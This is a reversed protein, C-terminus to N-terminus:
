SLIDKKNVKEISIIQFSFGNFHELDIEKLFPEIRNKYFPLHELEGKNITEVKIGGLNIGGAERTEISNSGRMKPNIGEGFIGAALHLDSRGSLTDAILAAKQENTLLIGKGAFNYLVGTKLDMAIARVKHGLVDEQEVISIKEENLKNQIRLILRESEGTQGGVIRAKLARPQSGIEALADLITKIGANVNISADFHAMAGSQRDADYLTLVVCPGIGMTVLYSNNEKENFQKIGYEKQLIEIGAPVDRELLLGRKLPVLSKTSQPVAYLLPNIRSLDGLAVSSRIALSTITKALQKSLPHEGRDLIRTLDSSSLGLLKSGADTISEINGKKDVEITVLARDNKSDHVYIYIKDSYALSENASIRVYENQFVQQNFQGKLQAVTEHVLTKLADSFEMNKVASSASQGSQNGIEMTLSPTSEEMRIGLGILVERMRAFRDEDTPHTKIGYKEYPLAFIQNEEEEFREAFIPNRLLERIGRIFAPGNKVMGAKVAFYIAGEDARYERAMLKEEFQRKLEPNRVLAALEEENAPWKFVATDSSTSVTNSEKTYRNLFDDFKSNVAANFRQNERDIKWELIHSAEHGFVYALMAEDLMETLDTRMFIGADILFYAPIGSDTVTVPITELLRQRSFPPIALGMQEIVGDMHQQFQQRMGEVRKQPSQTVSSSSVSLFDGLSEWPTITKGRKVAEKLWWSDSHTIGERTASIREAVGDIFEYVHFNGSRSAEYITRNQQDNASQEIQKIEAIDSGMGKSVSFFVNPNSLNLQDVMALVTELSKGLFPMHAYVITTGGEANDGKVIFACCWSSNLIVGDQINKAIVWGNTPIDIRGDKIELDKKGGVAEGIMGATIRQTIASSAPGDKESLAASALSVKEPSISAVEIDRLIHLIWWSKETLFDEWSEKDERLQDAFEKFAEFDLFIFYPHKRLLESGSMRGDIKDWIYELSPVEQLNLAARVATKLPIQLVMPQHQEFFIRYKDAVKRVVEREARNVRQARETERGFEEIMTEAERLMINIVEPPRSAYEEALPRDATLSLKNYHAQPKYPSTMGLFKQHVDFFADVEKQDFPKDYINLGTRLISEELLKTTGHYVYANNVFNRWLENVHEDNQDVGSSAFEKNDNSDAMIASGASRLPVIIMFTTGEGKVSEVHISAGKEKLAHEVGSLGYGTGGKGTRDLRDGPIFVRHLKDEPIGLGNDKIEFRVTNEKPFVRLLIESAESYYAANVLTEWIAIDVVDFYTSLENIQADIKIELAIKQNRSEVFYKFREKISEMFWEINKVEEKMEVAFGFLQRIWGEVRGGQKLAFNAYKNLKDDLILGKEHVARLHYMAAEFEKFRAEVKALLTEPTDKLWGGENGESLKVWEYFDDIAGVLKKSANFLPTTVTKVIEQDSESLKLAQRLITFILEKKDKFSRGLAMDPYRKIELFTDQIVGKADIYDNEKLDVFLADPDIGIKLFDQKVVTGNLKLILTGKPNIFGFGVAAGKANHLGGRLFVPSVPLEKNGVKINSNEMASSASQGKTGSTVQASSDTIGPSSQGGGERGTYDYRYENGDYGDLVWRRDERNLFRQFSDMGYLGPSNSVIHELEYRKEFRDRAESGLYCCLRVIDVTDKLADRAIADFLAEGVGVPGIREFAQVLFEKGPVIDYLIAGVMEGRFVAKLGGGEGRYAAGLNYNDGAIQKAEKLFGKILPIDEPSRLPSISISIGGSHDIEAIGSSASGKITSSSKEKKFDRIMDKVLQAYSYNPNQAINSLAKTFMIKWDAQNKILRTKMSVLTKVAREYETDAINMRLLSQLYENIREDTADMFSGIMAVLEHMALGDEDIGFYNHVMDLYNHWFEHSFNFFFQGRSSLSAKGFKFDKDANDPSTEEEAFRLAKWVASYFLAANMKDIEPYRRFIEIVAMVAAEKINTVREGTKSFYKKADNQLDDNLIHPTSSDKEPGVLFYIAEAPTLEGMREKLYDPLDDKVINEAEVRYTEYMNRLIEEVNGPKEGKKGALVPEASEFDYLNQQIEINLNNPMKQNLIYGTFELLSVVFDAALSFQFMTALLEMVSLFMQETFARRGSLDKKMISAKIKGLLVRNVEAVNSKISVRGNSKKELDVAATKLTLAANNLTSLLDEFSTVSAGRQDGRLFAASKLMEGLRSFLGNLNTWNNKSVQRKIQRGLLEGISGALTDYFASRDSRAAYATLLRSIIGDQLAENQVSAKLGMATALYVILTTTEQDMQDNALLDLLGFINGTSVSPNPAGNIELLIRKLKEETGKKLQAAKPNERLWGFEVLVNELANDMSEKEISSSASRLENLIFSAIDNTKSKLAKNFMDELPVSKFLDKLPAAHRVIKAELRLGDSQRVSIDITGIGLEEYRIIGELDIKKDERADIDNAVEGFREYDGVLKVSVADLGKKSRDVVWRLNEGHINTYFKGEVSRDPIAGIYGLKDQLISLIEFVQIAMHKELQEVKVGLDKALKDFGVSNTLRKGNQNIKEGKTENDIYSFGMTEAEVWFDAEGYFAHAGDEIAFQETSDALATYDKGYLPYVKQGAQLARYREQAINRINQIAPTPNKLVDGYEATYDDPVPPNWELYPKLEAAQQANLVKTMADIEFAVRRRELAKITRKELRKGPIMREQAYTIRGGQDMKFIIFRKFSESVWTVYVGNGLNLYMGTDLAYQLPDRLDNKVVVHSSLWLQRLTEKNKNGPVASFKDKFSKANQLNDIFELKEANPNKFFQSLFAKKWSNGKQSFLEQFSKDITERSVSGHEAYGITNIDYPFAERLMSMLTILSNRREKDSLLYKVVLRGDSAMEAPVSIPDIYAKKLTAQLYKQLNERSAQNLKEGSISRIKDLLNQGISRLRATAAQIRSDDGMLERIFDQAEEDGQISSSSMALAPKESVRAQASSSQQSRGRTNVRANSIDTGEVIKQLINIRLEDIQSRLLKLSGEISKRAEDSPLRNEMSSTIDKLTRNVSEKYSLGDEGLLSTLTDLTVQAELMRRGAKAVWSMAKLQYMREVDKLLAESSFLLALPNVSEVPLSNGYIIIGTGYISTAKGPLFSAFRDRSLITVDGNSVSRFYAPNFVKRRPLLLSEGQKTKYFVNKENVIVMIDLDNPAITYGYLYSGYLVVSEIASDELWPYKEKVFDRVVDLLGDINISNLRQQYQEVEDYWSNALQLALPPARIQNPQPFFKWYAQRDKDNYFISLLDGLAAKNLTQGETLFKEKADSVFGKLIVRQKQKDVARYRAVLDIVAERLGVSGAPESKISSSAAQQSVIIAVGVPNKLSSSAIERLQPHTDARVVNMEEKIKLFSVGGSTYKRFIVQKEASDYEKRVHEFIGNKYQSLYEDYIQQKLKPDSLKLPSTKNKDIYLYYISEQLLNKYYQALILSYYVQRLAAFEKSTNIKKEILPLIKEKMLAVSVKNVERKTKAPIDNDETLTVHRNVAEFDEELMVKLTAKVVFAKNKYTVVVAKDPVIWVKNLIDIPLNTTKFLSNVKKYLEDWYAKGEPSQPVTMAASIKKLLLDQTVFTKGIATGNLTDPLIRNKEYYTLNVWMDEEPVTLGLLFSEILPRIESRLAEDDKFKQNGQDFIFQFHFPNAADFSVGKILLPQYDPQICAILASVDFAYLPSFFTNLIFCFLIVSAM